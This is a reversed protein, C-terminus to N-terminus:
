LLASAAGGWGGHMNRICVRRRAKESYVDFLAVKTPWPIQNFFRKKSWFPCSKLQM